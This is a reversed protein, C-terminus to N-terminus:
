GSKGPYMRVGSGWVRFGLGQVKFGIGWVGFRLGELGLGGPRDSSRSAEHRIPGGERLLPRGGGSIHGIRTFHVTDRREVGPRHEVGAVSVEAEHGGGFLAFGIM